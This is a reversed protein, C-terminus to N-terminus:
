PVDVVEEVHFGLAILQAILRRADGREMRVSDWAINGTYPHYAGFRYVEGEIALTKAPLNFYASQGDVIDDSQLRIVTDGDDGSVDVGYLAEFDEHMESRVCLNVLPRQPLPLASIDVKM